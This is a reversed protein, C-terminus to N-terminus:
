EFKGTCKFMTNIINLRLIHSPRTCKGRVNFEDILLQSHKPNDIFIAILNRIYRPMISPDFEVFNHAREIALRLAVKKNFSEGAKWNCVSYGVINGIMVFCAVPNRSMDRVYRVIM